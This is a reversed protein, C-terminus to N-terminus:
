KDSSREVVKELSSKAIQYLKWRFITRLIIDTDLKNSRIHGGSEIGYVTYRVVNRKLNNVLNSKWNQNM